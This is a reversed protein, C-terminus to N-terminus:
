SIEVKGFTLIENPPVTRQARWVDDCWRGHNRRRVGLLWPTGVGSSVGAHCLPVGDGKTSDEAGEGRGAENELSV